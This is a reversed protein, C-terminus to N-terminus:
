LFARCFLACCLLIRGLRLGLGPQRWTDISLAAAPPLLPGAPRAHEPPPLKVRRVNSHSAATTGAIAPRSCSLTAAHSPQKAPQRSPRHHCEGTRRQGNQAGHRLTRLVAELWPQPRDERFGWGLRAASRSHLPMHAGYSQEHSAQNNEFIRTHMEAANLIRLAWTATTPAHAPHGAHLSSCWAQAPTGGADGRGPVAAHM